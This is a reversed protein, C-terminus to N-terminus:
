DAAGIMTIIQAVWLRRFDHNQLPRADAVASKLAAAVSM